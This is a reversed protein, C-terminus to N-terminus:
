QNRPTVVSVVNVPVNKINPPKLAMTVDFSVLKTCIKHSLGGLANDLEINQM